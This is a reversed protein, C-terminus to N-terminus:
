HTLRDSFCADCEVFSSTEFLGDGVPIASRRSVFSPDIEFNGETKGM